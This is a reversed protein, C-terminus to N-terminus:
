VFGGPQKAVIRQGTIKELFHEPLLREVVTLFAEILVRMHDLDGEQVRRWVSPRYRVIISLAYLLVVCIVRYEGVVGFIPLILSDHQFPSHHVPLAEFWFRKGPHNVAVRFHHGPGSGRIEMIESIPGPFAAIDQKTLRGSNDLLRVYTRSAPETRTFMSPRANADQDPFPTVWGPKEDFINSFLDSLEPIRAFLQVLNLWSTPPVKSLEEYGDPKKRGQPLADLTLGLSQMWVPFFGWSVVLVILGQLGDAPGDLTHLGHGKKTSEEIETLTQAGKPSALMEAFAFALSGYYLNLIRQSVTRSERAHFYDSGNRIAYAVGAAKSSVAQPDLEVGERRGREAVIKEALTVSQLQRLRLWIAEIPEESLLMRYSPPGPEIPEDTDISPVFKGEVSTENWKLLLAHFHDASSVPKTVGHTSSEVMYPMGNFYIHEVGDSLAKYISNDTASTYLFAIFHRQGAREAGIILYEGAEVEREIAAKWGHTRLPELFKSEADRRLIVLRQNWGTDRSPLM